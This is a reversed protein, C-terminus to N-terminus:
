RSAARDAAVRITAIGTARGSRRASSSEADVGDGGDAIPIVGRDMTGAVDGDFGNLRVRELGEGIWVWQARTNRVAFGLEVNSAWVAVGADPGSAEWASPDQPTTNTGQLTIGEGAVYHPHEIHVLAENRGRRTAGGRVIPTQGRAARLVIPEAASGAQTTRFGEYTGDYVEVCTGPGADRLAADISAYMRGAGVTLLRKCTPSTAGADPDTGADLASGADVMAADSPAGGDRTPLGSDRDTGAGIVDLANTCGALASAALGQVFVRRTTPHVPARPEARDAATVLRM